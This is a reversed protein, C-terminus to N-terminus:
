LEPVVLIAGGGLADAPAAARLGFAELGATHSLGLVLGRGAAAMAVVEERGDGSLPIARAGGAADVVIMLADDGGRATLTTGGVEIAGSFFGAIALRDGLAVVRTTADYDAGGLRIAGLSTGDAAWKALYGDAAGRVDLTSAGAVLEGRAMGVVAVEGATTIAVDAPLDERSGGFSRQWAIEGSAARLLLVLADGTIARAAMRQLEAGRLEAGASFTGVVAVDDGRCDAATFGDDGEGGMRVLRTVAGNGDILAAFGDRQGGTSVVQEGVRLTGGFSGVIVAGGECVAVDALTVFDTSLLPIRRRVAGSAADLEVAAAVGPAAQEMAIVREGAASMPGAAGELKVTWREPVDISGAQAGESGADGPRNTAVVPGGHVWGVSRVRVGPGSRDILQLKLEGGGGTRGAPAGGCGSAMALLGAVAWRFGAGVRDLTAGTKANSGRFGEVQTPSGRRPM